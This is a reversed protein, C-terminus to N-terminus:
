ITCGIDLYYAMSYMWAEYRLVYLVDVGGYLLECFVDKRGHLIDYLAYLFAHLIDNLVDNGGTLMNYLVALGAYVIHYLANGQVFQDAQRSARQENM